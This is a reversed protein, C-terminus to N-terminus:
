AYCSWNSKAQSMNMIGEFEVITYTRCISTIRRSHRCCEVSATGNKLKVTVINIRTRLVYLPFSIICMIQSVNNTRTRTYCVVASVFIPKNAERKYM